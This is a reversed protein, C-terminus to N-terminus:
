SMVAGGLSSQLPTFAAKSDRSIEDTRECCADPLRQPMLYYMLVECILEKVCPFLFTFHSRERSTISNKWM